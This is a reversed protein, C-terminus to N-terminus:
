LCELVIQGQIDDTNLPDIKDFELVSSIAGLLKYLSATPLNELKKFFQDREFRGYRDGQYKARNLAVCAVRDGAKARQELVETIADVWEKNDGFYKVLAVMTMTSTKDAIAKVLVEDGDKRRHLAMNYITECVGEFNDKDYDSVQETSMRDIVSKIQELSFDADGHHGGNLMKNVDVSSLNKDSMRETLCLFLDKCSAYMAHTAARGKGLFEALEVDGVRFHELLKIVRPEIEGLASKGWAEGNYPRFPPTECLLVFLKDSDEKDLQKFETPKRNGFYRELETLIEEHEKDELFEEGDIIDKIRQKSIAM